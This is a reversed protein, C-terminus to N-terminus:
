RRTAHRYQDPTLGTYQKFSRTFHSQDVFGAALALAALPEDSATLRAAAWDLRLRRVYGGLTVGHHARFVRALHVPHVGVTAALEGVAPPTAFRAHLVEQARALWPPPRRDLPPGPALCRAARVLLELVLGEVALASVADPAQLERSIRWALGAIGPDRFHSVEALVRIYPRLQEEQTPAPEIIVHHSAINAFRDSHREGAPKILITTAPCACTAGNLVEDFAGELVVSICARDHYHPAITLLPPFHADTVRYGGIEAGALRASGLTVPVPM